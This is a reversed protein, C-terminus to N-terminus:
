NAAWVAEVIRDMVVRDESTGPAHSGVMMSFVVTRGSRCELYGSLARAEGLTGTKAFLHGKVLSKTFRGELTGDVGGVPLSAKYPGFWPQGAAYTLLKVVARPTVLDHGSLGSGDYFVFDGPDVGAQIVFARVVRAGQATSGSTGVAVGLQHLLLEAHLNESEKNTVAVDEGLTPSDHAALLKEVSDSTGVLLSGEGHVRVSRPAHLVDVIPERTEKLFGETDVAERHEVRAVGKVEVGREELMGKLAMAAYEAPDAIAVEEEEPKADVAITGFMRLVKSGMARDIGVHSGSKAVGTMLGSTDVGYYAVVPDMAVVAPMGAVAGPGVTVKVQNDNVSLASVPAGYGWVADDIAWDEPYPEWPFLMDDGVVDGDVVKLGTRAVADAMAALYRLPDPKMEASGKGRDQPEVYPGAPGSLNADGDGVLVLDGKLRATGEFVGRGVVKTEFTTGPGLLALAAATTFLKANSAPQFFQGENLQYIATGDMGVVDIGWHAQPVGSRAVSPDALLGAIQVGLL